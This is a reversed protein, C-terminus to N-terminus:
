ITRGSTKGVLKAKLPQLGQRYCYGLSEESGSVWAGESASTGYDAVHQSQEDIVLVQQSSKPAPQQPVPEADKTSAVPALPRVPESPRPKLVDFWGSRAANVASLALGAM